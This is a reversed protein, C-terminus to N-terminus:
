PGIAHLAGGRSGAFLAGDAGISVGSAPKDGLPFEWALRGSAGELAYVVGTSDDLAYVFGAGDVAPQTMGGIDDRQFLWRQEGSDPDLAALGVGDVGVYLTGDAGVAPTSTGTWLPHTWRLRGDADFSYLRRDWAGVYLSGDLGISPVAAISGGAVWRVVGSPGDLAIVGGGATGIYVTGDAAITAANVPDHQSTWTWRLAASRGEFARVLSPSNLDKRSSVVVLGDSGVTVNNAPADITRRWKETGSEADLAYLQDGAGVFVTGDAGIAPMGGSKGGTPFQWKIAGSLSDLGHVIANGSGSAELSVTIVTGDAAM